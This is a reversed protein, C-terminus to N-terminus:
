KSKKNFNIKDIELIECRKFFFELLEKPVTHNQENGGISLLSSLEEFPKYNM